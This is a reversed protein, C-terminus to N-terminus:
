RRSVESEIRMIDRQDGTDAACVPGAELHNPGLDCKFILQAMSWDGIPDLSHGM